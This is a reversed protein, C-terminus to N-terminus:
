ADPSASQRRGAWRELSADAAAKRDRAEEMLARFGEPEVCYIADERCGVARITHAIARAIEDDCGGHEADGRGVM